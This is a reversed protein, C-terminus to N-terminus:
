LFKESKIDNYINYRQTKSQKYSTVQNHSPIKNSNESM